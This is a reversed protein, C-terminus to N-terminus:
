PSLSTPGATMTATEVRVATGPHEPDFVVVASSGIAERLKSGPVAQADLFVQTEKNLTFVRKERNDALGVSIDSADFLSGEAVAHGSRVVVLRVGRKAVHDVKAALTAVERLAFKARTDVRDVADQYPQLASEIRALGAAMKHTQKETAALNEELLRLRENDQQVKAITPVVDRTIYAGQVAAIILNGAVITYLAILRWASPEALRPVGELSGIRTVLAKSAEEIGSVQEGLRDLRRGLDATAQDLRANVESTTVDGAMPTNRPQQARDWCKASYVIRRGPGPAASQDARNDASESQLQHWWNNVRPLV